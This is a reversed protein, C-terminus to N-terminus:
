GSHFKVGDHLKFTYTKADNTWETALLPEVGPAGKKPFVLTDYINVMLVTDAYDTAKAPDIEGVPAEDLRLVREAFAPTGALLSAALLGALLGKRSVTM